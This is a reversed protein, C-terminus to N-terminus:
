TDILLVGAVVHRQPGREIDRVFFAMRHLLSKPQGPHTRKAIALRQDAKGVWRLKAADRKKRDVLRSYGVALPDVCRGGFAHAAHRRPFPGLTEGAAVEGVFIDGLAREIVIGILWKWCFIIDLIM